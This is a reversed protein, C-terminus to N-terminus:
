IGEQIRIIRENQIILTKNRSTNNDAFDEIILNFIDQLM